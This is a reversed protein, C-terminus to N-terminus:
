SARVTAGGGDSAGAGTSRPAAPTQLVQILRQPPPGADNGARPQSAAAPARPALTKLLAAPPGGADTAQGIAPAVTTTSATGHQEDIEITIRM